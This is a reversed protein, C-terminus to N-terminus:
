VAPNDKRDADGNVTQRNGQTVTSTNLDTKKFIAPYLYELVWIAAKWHKSAAQNIKLLLSIILDAKAKEIQQWLQYYESQANNNKADSRGCRLWRQLTRKSIGAFQAAHQLSAGVRLAECIRQRLAETLEVTPRNM